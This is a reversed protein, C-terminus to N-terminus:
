VGNLGGGSRENNLSKVKACGDSSSRVPAEEKMKEQHFPAQLGSRARSDLFGYTLVFFTVALARPLSSKLRMM